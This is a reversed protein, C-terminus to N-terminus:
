PSPADPEDPEDDEGLDRVGSYPYCEPPLPVGIRDSLAAIRATHEPYPDLNRYGTVLSGSPSGHPGDGAVLVVPMTAPEGGSETLAYYRRGPGLKGREADMRLYMRVATNSLREAVKAQADDDLAVWRFGDGLDMVTEFGNEDAM